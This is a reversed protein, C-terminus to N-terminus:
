QYINHDGVQALVALNKGKGVWEFVVRHHFNVSFSYFGKLKGKLPHVRLRKHNKSDKFEAVREIIEERVAADLARLQRLFSPRYAVEM